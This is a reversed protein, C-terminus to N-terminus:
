NPLAVQAMGGDVKQYQLLTRGDAALDLQYTSGFEDHDAPPLEVGSVLRFRHDCGRYLTLRHPELATGVRVIFQYEATAPQIRYLPTSASKFAAIGLLSSAAVTLMLVLISGVAGFLATFGESRPWLASILAAGVLCVPVLYLFTSLGLTSIPGIVLLSRDLTVEIMTAGIFTVTSVVVLLHTRAFRGGGFSEAVRRASRGLM